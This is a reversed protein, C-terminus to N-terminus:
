GLGQGQRWMCMDEFGAVVLGQGAGAMSAGTIWKSTRCADLKCFWQHCLDVSTACGGPIMEPKLEVETHPCGM